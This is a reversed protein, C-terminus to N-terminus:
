FSRTKRAFLLSRDNRYYTWFVHTDDVAVSSVPEGGQTSELMPVPPALTRHSRRSLGAKRVHDRPDDFGGGWYVYESDVALASPSEVTSTPGGLEEGTVLQQEPAGSEDIMFVGGPVPSGGDKPVQMVFIKGPVKDSAALATASAPASPASRIQTLQPATKCPLVCRHVSADDLAIYLSDGHALLATVGTNSPSIRAEPIPSSYPLAYLGTQSSYAGFVYAEAAGAAISRYGSSPLVVAQSCGGSSTCLRVEGSQGRVVVRQTISSPELALASGQEVGAAYSFLVQFDEPQTMSTIDSKRVRAVGAPLSPAARAIFINQADVAIDSLLPESRKSVTPSDFDSTGASGGDTGSSSGASVASAPGCLPTTADKSSCATTAVVGSAKGAAIRNCLARPLALSSGSVKWVLGKDIPVVCTGDALCEGAGAGSSLAVALSLSPDNPDVGDITGTCSTMDLKVPTRAAFCIAADFCRGGGAAGGGGFLDKEVYDPLSDGDVHADACEGEIFTQGDPCASTLRSFGDSTADLPRLSASALLDNRSGTGSGENLWLLPARLLGTRGKPLTTVVDRLVRVSGDAKFAVARIKVVARPREQDALVAITAPFKVEGNPAVERTDGFIPRGDSTIYLGVAAVDKPASLDTQVAVMVGGAYPLTKASCALVLTLLGVSLGLTVRSSASLKM